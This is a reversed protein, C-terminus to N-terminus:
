RQQQIMSTPLFYFMIRATLPKWSLIFPVSCDCNSCGPLKFSVIGQISPQLLSGLMLHTNQSVSGIRQSNNQGTGTEYGKGPHLKQKIKKRSHIFHLFLLLKYKRGWLGQFSQLSVRRIHEASFCPNYLLIHSQNGALRLLNM